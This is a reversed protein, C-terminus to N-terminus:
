EYQEETCSILSLFLPIKLPSLLSSISNPKEGQLLHLGYNEPKILCLSISTEILILSKVMVYLVTTKTPAVSVNIVNGISSYNM